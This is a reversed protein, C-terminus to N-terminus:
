QVIEKIITKNLEVEPWGIIDHLTYKLNYINLRIDLNKFDFLEPYYKKFYTLLNSYDEEKIFKEAYKSVYKKPYEMMRKVIDPTFDISIFETREFDLLGVIKSDSVLINDFHSDWYTLKINSEELVYINRAVYNNVQNVLKSDILNKESIIKTNEAISRGFDKHTKFSKSLENLPTSNIIKLMNCLQQVIDERQNENYTHWVNYLNEGKIKRYVMYPTDSIQQSEDFVILNPVPLKNSFYTYLEVENAFRQKNSPDNCIKIIYKDDVSYVTNTFGVDVRTIELNNDLNNSELIKKVTQNSM